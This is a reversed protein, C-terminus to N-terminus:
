NKPLSNLYTDVLKRHRADDLSEDLIKGAAQIALNAVESRLQNLAADKDRDIEQKAQDVM